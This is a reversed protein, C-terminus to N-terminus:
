YSSLVGSLQGECIVAAAAMNSCGNSVKFMRDRGTAANWGDSHFANKTRCIFLGRDLQLYQHNICFM